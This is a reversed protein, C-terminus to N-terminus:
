LLLCSRLCRRHCCGCLCPLIFLHRCCCCSLSHLLCCRLCHLCPCFCCFSRCCCRLLRPLLLSLSRCCCRSVYLFFLLLFQQCLPFSFLFSSSSVSSSNGVRLVLRLLLSSGGRYFLRALLLLSCRCRVRRGRLFLRLLQRCTHCCCCSCLGLRLCPRLLCGRILKCSSSRRSGGLCLSLLLLRSRRHNCCCRSSLRLLPLPLLLHYSCRLRFLHLRFRRLLCLLDSPELLRLSASSSGFLGHRLLGLVTTRSLSPM